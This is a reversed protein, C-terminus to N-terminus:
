WMVNIIYLSFKLDFIEPKDLNNFDNYNVGKLVYEDQQRMKEKSINILKMNNWVAEVLIEIIFQNMSVGRENAM